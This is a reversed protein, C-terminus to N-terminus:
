SKSWKKIMEAVSELQEKTASKSADFLIRMGPQRRLQERLEMIEDTDESERGLLYDTSVEFYNAVKQLKDSSPAYRDWKGITGNGFGLEADLKAM